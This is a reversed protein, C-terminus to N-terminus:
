WTITKVNFKDAGSRTYKISMQIGFETSLRACIRAVDHERATTWHFASKTFTFREDSSQICRQVVLSSERWLTLYQRLSTEFRAPSQTASEDFGVVGGAVIPRDFTSHDVSFISKGNTKPIRSLLHVDSRDEFGKANTYFIFYVHRRNAGPESLGPFGGEAIISTIPPCDTILESPTTGNKHAELVQKYYTVCGDSSTSVYHRGHLPTEAAVAYAQIEAKQEPTYRDSSAVLHLNRRLLQRAEDKLHHASGSLDELQSGDWELRLPSCQTKGGAPAAAVVSKKLNTANRPLITIPTHVCMARDMESDKIVKDLVKLATEPIFILPIRTATTEAPQGFDYGCMRGPLGQVLADTKSTRAGEWVFGIHKKPVVKGARLRGRIIVVTTVSPADELCPVSAGGLEIQEDRTIAIQSEEATYLRVAYGKRSCITRVEKEAATALKGNTFRMLIYKNAQEGLLREFKAVNHTIDYTPLMRGIISYCELGIYTNGPKLHEIYKEYPTEKHALAALESYPTADVSLIYTNNTELTAPNGDMTIGHKLLFTHLKQKKTQVMHSEDVIVLANTIDITANFDQHFYVQIAGTNDSKYYSPNHKAADLKAQSRLVTEASGCIIYARQIDGNRLMERILSHYAGTKGSQCKAVLMAYRLKRVLYARRINVAATCQQESFSGGGEGGGLVSSASSVISISDSVSM